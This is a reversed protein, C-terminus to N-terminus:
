SFDIPVEEELGLEFTRLGIGIATSSSFDEAFFLHGGLASLATDRFRWSFFVAVISDSVGVRVRSSYSSSWSRTVM